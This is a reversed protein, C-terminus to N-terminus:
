QRNPAAKTAGFQRARALANDAAARHGMAAEAHALQLWATASKPAVATARKAYDLSEQGKGLKEACGSSAVWVVEANPELRAVRQFSQLAKAYHNQAAESLGLGFHAFAYKPEIRVANQFESSAEAWQRQALAMWGHVGHAMSDKPYRSSLQRSLSLARSFKRANIADLTKKALPDNVLPDIPSVIKEPPPLKKLLRDVSPESASVASCVAALAFVAFIFTRVTLRM